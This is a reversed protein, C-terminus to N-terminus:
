WQRYEENVGRYDQEHLPYDAAIAMQKSHASPQQDAEASFTSSYFTMMMMMMMM